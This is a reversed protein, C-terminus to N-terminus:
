LKSFFDGINVSRLAIEAVDRLRPDYEDIALPPKRVDLANGVQFVNESHTRTKGSQLDVLLWLFLALTNEREIPTSAEFDIAVVNRDDELLLNHSRLDNWFLGSKSFARLIEIISLAVKRIDIPRGSNIAQMLSQAKVAPLTIYGVRGHIESGVVPLFNPHPGIRRYADLEALFRYYANAAPPIFVFGKTFLEATLYYKRDKTRGDKIESWRTTVDRHLFGNIRKRSKWVKYMPRITTRGLAPFLAVKDIKIGDIGAFIELDDEPLVDRWKFPVEESKQALEVFFMDTKDLLNSLMLQTAELGVDTVVHHLVSFLFVIDYESPIVSRCFDLSFTGHTFDARLGLTEALVRCFDVNKKNYDLGVVSAGKNAFFLSIYGMSCGVDLIRINKADVGIQKDLVECRDVCARSVARAGFDREFGFVPQYGDTAAYALKVKEMREGTFDTM